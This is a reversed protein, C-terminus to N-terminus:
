QRKPEDAERAKSKTRPSECLSHWSCILPYVKTQRAFWIFHISKTQPIKKATCYLNLVVYIDLGITPTLDPTWPIHDDEILLVTLLHFKQIWPPFVVLLHLTETMEANGILPIKMYVNGIRFNQKYFTQFAPGQCLVIFSNKLCHIPVSLVYYFICWISSNFCDPDKFLM